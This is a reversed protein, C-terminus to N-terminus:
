SQKPTFKVDYMERINHKNLYDEIAQIDHDYMNSYDRDCQRWKGESEEWDFQDYYHCDEQGNKELEEIWITLRNNNIFGEIDIAYAEGDIDFHAYTKFEYPHKM